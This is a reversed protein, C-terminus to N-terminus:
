SWELLLDASVPSHSAIRVRGAVGVYALTGEFVGVHHSDLFYPIDHLAVRCSNPSVETVACRSSRLNLPYSKAIAAVAAQPGVTSGLTVKGLTSELFVLPGACGIARLAQRLSREPYFREAAAVLVPAFETVPYFSFPLYRDRLGPLVLGRRKAGDLLALFYMGALAADSPIASLVSPVDIPDGWAPDTFHQRVM